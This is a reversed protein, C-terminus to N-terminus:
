SRAIGIVRQVQAGLRGGNVSFRQSHGAGRNGGLNVVVDPKKNTDVWIDSSPDMTVKGLFNVVNFPNVNLSKSALPQNIFSKHTYTLNLVPGTLSVNTSNNSDFNFNYAAVNFTPRMEKKSPDIAANYESNFVDGVSHGNFGDVIMGNKFRPLNQSDLITLDQKTM